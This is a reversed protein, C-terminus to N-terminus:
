GAAAYPRPTGALPSLKLWRPLARRAQATGHLTLTGSRLAAARDLDGRWIRVMTRLSGEVGVREPFGPDHDCVDVGDATIVLWWRRTPPPLEPFVFGIV